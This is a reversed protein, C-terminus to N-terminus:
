EGVSNKLEMILGPSLVSGARAAFLAMEYAVTGIDARKSAIVGLMSGHSLASILLYGLPMDVVVKNPVGLQYARAVGGSLSTIGSTIAALRDADPRTQGPSAAMLLGDASVAVADTVGPTREAFTSLLWNFNRAETSVGATIDTM